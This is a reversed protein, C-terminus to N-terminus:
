IYFCVDTHKGYVTDFIITVISKRILTVDVPLYVSLILRFYKLSNCYLIPMM